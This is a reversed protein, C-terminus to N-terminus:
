FRQVRRLKIPTVAIPVTMIGIIGIIGILMNMNMVTPSAKNAMGAAM